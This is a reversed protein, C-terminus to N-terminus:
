GQCDPGSPTSSPETTSRTKTPMPTPSTPWPGILPAFSRIAERYSQIGGAVIGPDAAMPLAAGRYYTFPSVAMRGYRIPMLEPVRTEAQEALLHLPQQTRQSVTWEAHRVRPLTARAVKGRAVRQDVAPHEVSKTM